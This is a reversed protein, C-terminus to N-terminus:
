AATMGIRLVGGHGQARTLPPWLFVGVLAVTTFLLSLQIAYTLRINRPAMQVEKHCSNTGHPKLSATGAPAGEATALYTGSAERWHPWTTIWITFGHTLFPFVLPFLDTGGPYAVLM